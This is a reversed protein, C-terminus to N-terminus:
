RTHRLNHQRPDKGDGNLHNRPHNRQHNRQHNRPPCSRNALSWLIALNTPSKPNTEIKESVDLGYIVLLYLRNVHNRRSWRPITSTRHNRRILRHITSM